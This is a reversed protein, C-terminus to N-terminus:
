GLNALVEELGDVEPIDRAVGLQHSGEQSEKLVDVSPHRLITFFSEKRYRQM